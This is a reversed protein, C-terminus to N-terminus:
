QHVQEDPYYQSPHLMLGPQKPPAKSGKRPRHYCDLETKMKKSASAQLQNFPTSQKGIALATM